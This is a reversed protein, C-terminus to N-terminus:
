QWHMMQEAVSSVPNGIPQQRDIKRRLVEVRQRLYCWIMRNSIM